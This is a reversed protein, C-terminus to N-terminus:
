HVLKKSKKNLYNFFVDFIFLLIAISILIVTISLNRKMLEKLTAPVTFGDLILTSTHNKISDIDKSSLGSFGNLMLYIPFYADETKSISVRKSEPWVFYYTYVSVGRERFLGASTSFDYPSDEGKLLFFLCSFILVGYIFIRGWLLKHKPNEINNQM